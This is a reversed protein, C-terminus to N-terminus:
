VVLWGVGLLGGLAFLRVLGLCVCYDLILRDATGSAVVLWLLGVVFRFGFCGSVRSLMGM